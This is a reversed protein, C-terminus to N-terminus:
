DDEANADNVPGSENTALFDKLLAQYFENDNYVNEDHDNRMHESVM